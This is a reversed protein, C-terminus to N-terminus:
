RQERTEGHSVDRLVERAAAVDVALEDYYAFLPVFFAELLDVPERDANILAAYREEIEAERAPAGIHKTLDLVYRLYGRLDEMTVVQTEIKQRIFEIDLVETLHSLLDERHPVLRMYRHIFDVLLSIVGEYSPLRERFTAWFATSSDARFQASFEPDAVTSDLSADVQSLAAEGGLSNIQGILQLLSLDVLQKLETTYFPREQDVHNRLQRLQNLKTIFPQAVRLKDNQLWGQFTHSFRGLATRFQESTASKALHSHTERVLVSALEILQRDAASIPTAMLEHPYYRVAYARLLTAREPRTLQLQQEIDRVVSLKRCGTIFDDYSKTPISSLFEM